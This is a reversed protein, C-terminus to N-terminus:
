CCGCHELSVVEVGASSWHMIKCHTALGCILMIAISSITPKHLTRPTSISTTHLGVLHLPLCHKTKWLTCLTSSKWQFIYYQFYHKTYMVIFRNFYQKHEHVIPFCQRCCPRSAFIASLEGWAINAEWGHGEAINGTTYECHYKLQYRFSSVLLAPYALLKSTLEANSWTVVMWCNSQSVCYLTGACDRYTSRGLSGECHDPFSVLRSICVHNTQSHARPLSVFGNQIQQLLTQYGM